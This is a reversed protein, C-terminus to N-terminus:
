IKMLYALVAASSRSIGRYCHVLVRGYQVGEDIFDAISDLHIYLNYEDHDQAFVHKYVFNDPFCEELEIGMNLIHTVGNESLWRLSSAESFGGLYLNDVILSM